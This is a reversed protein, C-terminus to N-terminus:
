DHGNIERVMELQGVKYAHAILLKLNAIAGEVCDQPFDLRIQHALAGQEARELLQELPTM